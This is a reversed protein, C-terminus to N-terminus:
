YGGENDNGNDTEVTGNMSSHVTCRYTTMADALSQTYTFTVGEDDEQYNIGMDDELSGTQNSEQRLLYEDSANRTGFPHASGGNNVIRYRTDVTLTLTPNETGIQAVGSAGSVSTVEWASTGVNDITVTVDAGGGNANAGINGKAFVYQANANSQHINVYGDYSTLQDYSANIIRSSRSAPDTPAISGLYGSFPSSVVGGGESVTSKHIHGIQAVEVSSGVADKVSGNTDLDYTVLTKSATLEQLKVTGSVGDSLVSGETTSPGLPYTKSQRPSDVLDLGAGDDGKANAGIDGQAVLIGPNKPSQHVNVHGDFDAFFEIPQGIKRASTGNPSSGNVASLFYEVGGGDSVSNNHIHAPHSVSGVTAEPDL